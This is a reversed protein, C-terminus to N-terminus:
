VNVGPFQAVPATPVALSALIDAAESAAVGRDITGTIKGNGSIQTGTASELDIEPATVKGNNSVIVAAANTSAVIIEGNAGVSVRANGSDTLAGAGSPDLLLISPNITSIKTKNTTFAAGDIDNVTVTVTFVSEAPYTVSGVVQWNSVTATRSVLQVSYSPTGTVTGGWNVIPTYDALPASPDGDTFTALVLTGSNIGATAGLTQLPTTDTLPADAVGVRTANTSTSAGDVDNVTVSVTANGPEAYTASGVVRWTSATASRSVLQISATGAGILTGGWDVSLVYDNAAQPNADSFTALVISGTSNGELANYTTTNTTDTLPAEAVVFTEQSAHLESGGADNVTVQATNTGAEPYTVSGVVQWTSFTDARSVLQAFAAGAGAPTGGWNVIVTYDALDASPDSDTFTALVVNGTSYGEVVNVTSAASTDTLAGDAVATLDASFESTDNAADTATASIVDGVSTASALRVNFAAYGAGDTTVVTSGLYVHGQGYGFPDAAPNSYFDITLTSNAVSNITGVFHTSSGAEVLTLVPFNQLGNPGADADNPDNQTVGDNGLDIGLSTNGYIANGRISDGFSNDGTVTVGNGHNFAITNAQGAATGGITFNQANDDLLIGHGGNALNITGTADAGISNGTITTQDRFFGPQLQDASWIGYQGNASIVNASIQTGTAGGGLVVGAVTNGLPNTGSSDTGIFNGAVVAGTNTGQGSGDVVVGFQNGGSIINREVVGAPGTATTGILVNSTDVVAIGFGSNGLAVTGSADVGVNNGAVTSDVTNSLGISGGSWGAIVNREATPDADQGDVGIRVNSGYQIGIGSYGPSGLVHAGTADLGIYDGSIISDAVSFGSIGAGLNGSIVNRELGDSTGDGDTGIRVGAANFLVIGQPSSGVALTGTPDVGIMNGAIVTNQTNSLYVAAQAERGSIVNGEAADGMGDGNTGIIVGSSNDVSIGKQSTAAAHAGTVDTGIYNGAIVINNDSSIALGSSTNGSILNNLIQVGDAFVARIGNTNGQALNGTVDIGLYCDEVTVGLIPDNSAAGQINIGQGFFSHIDLGRITTNPGAGVSLGNAGAGANTGSLEILPTGAYGPQSTGDITVTNTITPLASLPTIVQHGGGAIAFTITQPGAIANADLIAQRLSGAGSDATNTVSSLLVRDELQQIQAAINVAAFPQRGRRLERRAPRQLRSRLNRLWPTLLM